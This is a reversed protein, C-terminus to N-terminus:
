AKIGGSLGPYDTLLIRAPTMTRSISVGCSMKGELCKDRQCFPGTMAPCFLVPSLDYLNDLVKLMVIRMEDTNRRCSRQGIMHKWQYPTASILLVNRLGQPTVYGASDHSIGARCLSEYCDMDLLCSKMYLSRIDPSAMMIEYPIAFAAKGSYNSYQLSASMFKVENQHRTIQSLFRRSAGVVAVTIVTFKQVAPHPLSNIGKVTDPQFAKNYLRLLDDMNHITHGRQTLRAVFVMNKEAEKVADCNLIKTEIQDM